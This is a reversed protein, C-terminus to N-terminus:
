DVRAGSEKVVKAWKVIEANMFAAFEEPTNTVPEGGQSSLREKVESLRMIKGIENSLKAVINKPTEARTVVGFWPNVDFGPLGAEAVTPLEPMAQSRQGGAVALARLKGALIHPRAVAMQLFMLSLQGGLLDNSAPGIGKYPVHVVNVGAMTKFLEMALHGGTGNGGSGYNLPRPESRALAILEKVSNASLSPHVVLAMPGWAVLTVPAFDKVTDYPLKPYLSPNIALDPAVMLITYGDPPAKAVIDSGITSGGGGRNEIVVPQAWNETLKQGIIRALIDTFGGPPYPVVFRIPKSPYSTQAAASGALVLFLVSILIRNVM